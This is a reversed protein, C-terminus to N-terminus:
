MIYIYAYIYIYMFSLLSGLCPGASFRAGRKARRRLQGRPIKENSTKDPRSPSQVSARMRPLPYGCCRRLADKGYTDQRLVVHM